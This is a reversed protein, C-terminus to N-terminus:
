SGFRTFTTLPDGRSVNAVLRRARFQAEAMRRSDLRESAESIEASALRTMEDPIGIAVAAAVLAYGRVDDRRVGMAEIYLLGLNVMAPTYGQVASRLYLDKARALNRTVAIGSEYMAGLKNEAQANGRLVGSKLLRASKSYSQPVGRGYFYLTALNSAAVLSGHDAARHYWAAAAVYDQPVGRAQAYMDGVRNMSEAHGHEAALKYWRFAEAQDSQEDCMVGLAYMASPSEGNNAAQYIRQQTVDAKRLDAAFDEANASHIAFAVLLPSIGMLRAIGMVAGAAVEKEHCVQLINSACNGDM